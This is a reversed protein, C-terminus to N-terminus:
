PMARSAGETSHRDFGVVACRYGELAVTEERCDTVQRRRRIARARSRTEQVFERRIRTRPCRARTCRRNTPVLREHRTRSQRRAFRQALLTAERNGNPPTRTSRRSGAMVCSERQWACPKCKSGVSVFPHMKHTFDAEEALVVFAENARTTAIPSGSDTASATSTTSARISQDPSEFSRPASAFANPAGDANGLGRSVLMALGFGLKRGSRRDRV